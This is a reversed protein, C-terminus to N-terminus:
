IHKIFFESRETIATLNVKKNYACLMRYFEEFKKEEEPTCSIFDYLM